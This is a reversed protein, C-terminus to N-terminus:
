YPMSQSSVAYHMFLLAMLDACFLDLSRDRQLDLLKCSSSSSRSLTWMFPSPPLCMNRQASPTSGTGSSCNLIIPWFSINLFVCICLLSKLISLTFLTGMCFWLRGFFTFSFEIQKILCVLTFAIAGIGAYLMHLWPVQFFSCLFCCNFSRIVIKTYIVLHLTMSVYKFSLVIATIIGTVFVVIGLICFFGACKTFDVQLLISFCTLVCESVICQHLIMGM